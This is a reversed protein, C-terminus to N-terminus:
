SGETSSVSLCDSHSCVGDRSCVGSSALCSAIICYRFFFFLVRRFFLAIRM